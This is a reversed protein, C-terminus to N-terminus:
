RRWIAPIARQMAEVREPPVAALIEPIRLMDKQEVRMSVKGLDLLSSWSVEVGDQIIVPICGHLIADEFRSSWGDGTPRLRSPPPM